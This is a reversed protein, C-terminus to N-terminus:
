MEIAEMRLGRLRLVQVVAWIGGIGTRRAMNSQADRAHGTVLSNTNSTGISRTRVWRAEYSTLKDIPVSTERMRRAAASASANWRCAFSSDADRNAPLTV